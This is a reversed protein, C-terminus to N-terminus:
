VKIKNFCSPVCIYLVFSNVDGPFNLKQSIYWLFIILVTKAQITMLIFFQFIANRHQVICVFKLKDFSKITVRQSYKREIVSKKPPGHNRVIVGM